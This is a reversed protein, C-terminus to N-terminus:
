IDEERTTYPEPLDCGEPMQFPIPYRIGAKHTSILGEAVEDAMEWPFATIMEHDQAMAFRRDGLCPIEVVPKKELITEAVGRSCVGADGSTKFVLDGGEAYLFAQVMRMSQATNMYIVACDPEIGEIPRSLPFTLVGKTGAPLRPMMEQMKVAAEPTKQYVSCNVEGKMVREPPEILGACASGLVCFSHASTIYTPWGYYRSYAIQQCINIKKDKVRLKVGEILSEDKIIKVGVAMSGPNVCKNLAELFGGGGM